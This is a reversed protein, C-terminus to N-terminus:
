LSSFSITVTGNGTIANIVLPFGFSNTFRLDKQGAAITADMGAPIYDVPLSHAHRETAKIGGELMAAYMTSSVQCIGGGIGPVTTKNVFVPAIVYGNESTRAGIANSFSFSEGPNIVMGNLKSASLAINVARSANPDYRTSYSSILNQQVAPENTHVPIGANASSAIRGENKGYNIYHLYYSVLDERGFAQILDPNNDRYIVVDFSANGRRGERMGYTIFHQLLADKDYGIAQKLDSYTNYYYDADFVDSYGATEAAKANLTVVGALIFPIMVLVTIKLVYRNRM